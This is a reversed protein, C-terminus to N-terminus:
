STRLLAITHQSKIASEPPERPYTFLSDTIKGLVYTKATVPRQTHSYALIDKSYSTLPSCVTTGMVKRSLQLLLTVISSITIALTLIDTDRAQPNDIPAITIVPSDINLFM